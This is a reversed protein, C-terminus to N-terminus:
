YIFQWEGQANTFRTTLLKLAIWTYILSADLGSQSIEAQINEQTFSTLALITQTWSGDLEQINVIDMYSPADFEIEGGESLGQSELTQNHNMLATSYEVNNIFLKIVNQDVKLEESVKKIADLVM